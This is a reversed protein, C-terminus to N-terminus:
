SRRMLRKRHKFINIGVSSELQLKIIYNSVNRQVHYDIKEVARVKGEKSLRMVLRFSQQHRM